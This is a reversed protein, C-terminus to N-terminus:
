LLSGRRSHVQAPPRYVTRLVAEAQVFAGADGSVRGVAEWVVADSIGDPLAAPDPTPVYLIETVDASAVYGPVGLAVRDRTVPALALAPRLGWGFDHATVYAAP